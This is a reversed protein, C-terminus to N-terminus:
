QQGFAGISAVHGREFKTRRDRVTVFYDADCDFTSQVRQELDGSASRHPTWDNRSITWLIIKTVPRTQDTIVQCARHGTLTEIRLERTVDVQGSLSRHVHRTPRRCGHSRLLHGSV